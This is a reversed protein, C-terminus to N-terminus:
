NQGIARRPCFQICKKCQICKEHDIEPLGYGKQSIAGTPCVRVAPCSHNQPCRHENVTIQM